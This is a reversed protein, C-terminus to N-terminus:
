YMKIQGKERKILHKIALEVFIKPRILYTPEDKLRLIRSLIEAHLTMTSISTEIGACLARSLIDVQVTRGGNNLRDSIKFTEAWIRSTYQCGVIKHEFNEVEDCRPCIPSDILRHRSLKEKTYIEKHAVRLLTSKLNVSSLKRLKNAWNLAESPDLILGSKYLCIPEKLSRGERIM